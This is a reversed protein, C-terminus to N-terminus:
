AEVLMTSLHTESLESNTYEGVILGKKMILIKNCNHLVEPIDDSIIIVGIGKLALNRVIQHIDSKSGIDVGVTPGNLILIDPKTALCKALVVRQQNGGSLTQVAVKASPTKITLEKVWEDAEIDALKMSFLGGKRVFKKLVSVVINNHISRRMFLGETLRDEPVYSIGLKSAQRISKISVSKGRVVITGSTAPYVGILSLALETRGSGLLGTVGLIDGRKLEFSVNSFGGKLSLNDVKLLTEHQGEKHPVFLTDAIERGTMHYIFKARDFDKTPGEIVKLGSRLIIIRESIEFVEDMKHSVFVIAIGQAQLQKIITFLANVEKKTLATTPEDMIILKANQLLARTIAVIQKDAVSLSEVKATLDINVGIKELASKATKKMESWNVIQNDSSVLKNVCINEAVTLNPFISFDQFIVQIGAHISDIPTIQKYPKGEIEISGEDPQYVGCIVKIFTSKGSGNEGAICLIEGKNIQFDVNKLAQVGAFSKSIGSLKLFVESMGM